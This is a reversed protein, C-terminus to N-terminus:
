GGVANIILSILLFIPIAMFLFVTLASSNDLNVLNLFPQMIPAMLSFILLGIVLAIIALIFGYGVGKKNKYIM